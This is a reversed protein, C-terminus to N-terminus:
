RPALLTKTAEGVEATLMDTLLKVKSPGDLSEFPDAVGEDRTGSYAEAKAVVKQALVAGTQADILSAKVYVYPALFGRAVEGTERLDARNIQRVRMLDDVYFGLGTLVGNGSAFDVGQVRLDTRVPTILILQTAQIQQLTPKLAAPIEYRSGEPQGLPDGFLRASPLKLLLFESEPAVQKGAKEVAVLSTGDMLGAPMPWADRRNSDLHSGTKRSGTVVQLEDGLLSVVAVRQPTGAAQAATLGTLGWLGAAALAALSMRRTTRTM